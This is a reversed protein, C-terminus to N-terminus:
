EPQWLWGVSREFSAGHASGRGFTYAMSTDYAGSDLVAMKSGAAVWSPLQVGTALVDGEMCSRGLLRDDGAALLQIHDGRIAAIRHPFRHVCPVEGLSADLVAARAKGDARVELVTSLVAACSEALAKGPELLVDRLDPLSQYAEDVLSPLCGHVFGEFDEAAVGGGLNLVVFRRAALRELRSAFDLTSRVLAAWRRLGVESSQVHLSVGVEVGAPAGRLADILEHFHEPQELAVGFRSDLFPPRLRIGILRAPPRRLYERFAHLSDAFVARLPDAVEEGRFPTPGNYVVRDHSFGSAIAWWLEDPGIVEAFLDHERALRMFEPAPNTKVSYAIRVHRGTTPHAQPCRSAAEFRLGATRPLFVRAPTQLPLRSAALLDIALSDPIAAMARVRSLDSDHMRRALLPMGSPHKGGTTREPSLLQPPPLPLRPNVPIEHVVRIFQASVAPTARAIMGTAAALLQAPLNRGALTAGYIWAPFRPNWDILWLSETLDRVFELEGGGTWGTVSVLQSLAHRLESPVEQVMGAWTKGESTVSRKEMFVADLLRGEHAAYAVSVELGRVEGQVFLEAGWAGGLEAAARQLAEWNTARRAEYFPGKVWVRWDQERCFRYVNREGASLPIWPPVAVPLLSAARFDPKVAGSLAPPPPVLARSPCAGSFWHVELDLGSLLWEGADLREALEDRHRGLDLEDWPRCVWVDDFVNDHLGSSEVSHDKATLRASPYALRL